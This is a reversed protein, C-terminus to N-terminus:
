KGGFDTVWVIRGKDDKAIGFGVDKYHKSLINKRHGESNMWAKVVSEASPQGKAINEGVAHYKYGQAKVRSGPSGEATHSFKGTRALYEAYEQASASLKANIELARAGEVARHKNHLQLLEAIMAERNLGGKQGGKKAAFGASCFTLAMAIALPIEIRLRKM